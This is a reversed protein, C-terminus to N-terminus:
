LPKLTNKPKPVLGITEFAINGKIIRLKASFAGYDVIIPKMDLEDSTITGDSAAYGSNILYSKFHPIQSNNIRPINGSIVDTLLKAM